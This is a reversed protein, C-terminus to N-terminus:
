KIEGNQLLNELTLILAQFNGYTRQIADKLDSQQPTHTLTELYIDELDM